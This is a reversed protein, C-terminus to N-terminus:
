TYDVRIKNILSYYDGVILGILNLYIAWGNFARAFKLFLYTNVAM